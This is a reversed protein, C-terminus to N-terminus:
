GHSQGAAGGSRWALPVSDADVEAALAALTSALRAQDEETLELFRLALVVQRGSPDNANNDLRVVEARCDFSQVPTLRLSVSLKRGVAIPADALCSFGGVGVSTTRAPVPQADEDPHLYAPIVLWARSHARRSESGWSTPRVLAVVLGDSGIRRLVTTEATRPVGDSPRLVLRVSLGFELVEGLSEEIGIWVENRTLDAITARHPLWEEGLATELTVRNPVTPEEKYETV